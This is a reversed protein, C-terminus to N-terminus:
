DKLSEIILFYLHYLEIELKEYYLSDYSSRSFIDSDNFDFQSLNFFVVNFIGTETKMSPERTWENTFKNKHNYIWMPQFSVNSSNGGTSRHGTIIWIFFSLIQKTYLHFVLCHFISSIHFLILSFPPFYHITSFPCSPLFSLLHIYKSRACFYSSFCEYSYM